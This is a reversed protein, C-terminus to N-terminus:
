MCYSHTRVPYALLPSHPDDQDDAHEHHRRHVAAWRAPTDQM